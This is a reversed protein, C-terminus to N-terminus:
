FRHHDLKGVMLDMLKGKKECQPARCSGGGFGEGSSGAAHLQCSKIKVHKVYKDYVHMYIYICM